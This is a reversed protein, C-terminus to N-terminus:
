AGLGWITEEPGAIKKDSSRSRALPAVVVAIPVPRQGFLTDMETFARALTTILFGWAGSMRHGKAPSPFSAKIAM